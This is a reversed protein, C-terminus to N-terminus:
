SNGGISGFAGASAATAAGSIGVGLLGTLINGWGTSSQTTTTPQRYREQAMAGYISLPAQMAAQANNIRQQTLASQYQGVNIGTQIQQPPMGLALNSRITGEQESLRLGSEGRLRAAEERLGQAREALGFRMQRTQELGGGTREAIGIRKEAGYRGLEGYSRTIEKDALDALEREFEPDSPNRGLLSAQNSIRLRQDQTFDKLGLKILDKSIKVEDDLASGMDKGTQKIRNDLAILANDLGLGTEKVKQDYENLSRGISQDLRDAEGMIFGVADSSAKRLPGLVDDMFKNQGENLSFDGRLFKQTKEMIQFEIDQKSRVMQLEKKQSVALAQKYQTSQKGYQEGIIQVDRSPKKEVKYDMKPQYGKRAEAEENNLNNIENQVNWTMGGGGKWRPNQADAQAARLANELASRRSAFSKGEDSQEWSITTKQVDYGSEELYSTMMGDTTLSMLALEQSTPPPIKTEQTSTTSYMGM